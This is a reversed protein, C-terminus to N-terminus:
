TQMAAHRCYETPLPVLVFKAVLERLRAGDFAGTGQLLRRLEDRSLQCTAPLVAEAGCCENRMVQNPWTLTCELNDAQRRTVYIPNLVLRSQQHCFASPFQHHQRWLDQPGAILTLNQSRELEGLSWETQLDFTHERALRHLMTAEGFLRPQLFGFCELYHAPSLPIGATINQQLANHLHPFLWLAEPKL